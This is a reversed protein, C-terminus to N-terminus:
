RVKQRSFYSITGVMVLIRVLIRVLDAGSPRRFIALDVPITVISRRVVGGVMMPAGNMSGKVPIMRRGGVAASRFMERLAASRPAHAVAIAVTQFRQSPALFSLIPPQRQTTHFLVQQSNSMVPQSVRPTIWNPLCVWALKLKCMSNRNWVVM